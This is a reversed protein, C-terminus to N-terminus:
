VAGNDHAAAIAGFSTSAGSLSFVQADVFNWWGGGPLTISVTESVTAPASAFWWETWWQNSKVSQAASGIQTWTLQTGKVTVPLGSIANAEIALLVVRGAGPTSYPITIVSGGSGTTHVPFGADLVPPTGGASPTSVAVTAIDSKTSDAQSVALVHFTGASAPATYLGAATISGGAAGEQVSWSVVTNASGTVTATFARSSGTLLSATKPSVAVSVPVPATVTVTASASKSTDAQSTAIVHFLGASAPATYAGAASISGGAAGEQVTWSVATNASGTVAASFSQTANVLLSATAPAVSVSVAPTGSSLVEVAFLSWTDTQNGGQTGLTVPGSATPANLEALWDTSDFANTFPRMWLSVSNASLSRNAWTGAGAALVLSGAAQPTLTVSPFATATGNDHAAATAGVAAAAGSFSLLQADVFNWWGGGPLSISVTETTAATATAVWWSTWFAPSKSSTVAAGIQTWALKSGSVHIPLGSITNAEVALLVLRNPGPTSYSITVAAGAGNAGGRVPFGSDLAPAAVLASSTARGARGDNSGCAFSCVAVM